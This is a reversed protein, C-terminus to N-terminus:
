SYSEAEQKTLVKKEIEMLKLLDNGKAPRFFVIAISLAFAIGIYHGRHVPLAGTQWVLSGPEPRREFV